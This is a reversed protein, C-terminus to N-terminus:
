ARSSRVGYDAIAALVADDEGAARAVHFAVGPWRAEIAAIREPLDRRVHGGEGLFLPVIAIRACGADILGTVATELDPTTLELFALAVRADPLARSVRERVRVFPEAWQPDRAGHAFLVVGAPAMSM